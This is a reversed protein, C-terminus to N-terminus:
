AWNLDGLPVAEVVEEMNDPRMEGEFEYWRGGSKEFAERLDDEEMEVEKDDDVEFERRRDLQREFERCAWDHWAEEKAEEEVASLIDGDLVPYDRLSTLAERLAGGEPNDWHLLDAAVVLVETGDRYTHVTVGELDEGDQEGACLAALGQINAKDVLTPGGIEAVLPLDQNSWDEVELQNQAKRYFSLEPWDAMVEKEVVQTLMKLSKLSKLSTM